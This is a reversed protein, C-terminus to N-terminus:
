RLSRFHREQAKRIQMEHQRGISISDSELYAVKPNDAQFSSAREQPFVDHDKKGRVQERDVRLAREFERNVYLYRLAKDQVFILNSSNNLFAHTRFKSERLREKVAKRTPTATPDSPFPAAM